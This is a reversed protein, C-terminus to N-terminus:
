YWGPNSTKTEAQRQEVLRQAEDLAAKASARGYQVQQEANQYVTWAYPEVASTSSSHLMQPNKIGIQASEIASANAPAGKRYASSFIAARTPPINTEGICWALVPDPQMMYLM